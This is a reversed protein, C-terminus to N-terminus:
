RCGDCSILAQLPCGRCRLRIHFIRDLFSDVCRQRGGRAGRCREADVHLAPVICATKLDRLRGAAREALAEDEVHERWARIAPCGGSRDRGTLDARCRVPRCPEAPIDQDVPDVHDQCPEIIGKVCLDSDPVRLRVNVSRCSGIRDARDEVPAPREGDVGAVPRILDGYGSRGRGAAHHGRDVPLCPVVPEVDVEEGPRLVRGPRGRLLRLDADGVRVRSCEVQGPGQLLPVATGEGAGNGHGRRRLARPHGSHVALAVLGVDVRVARRIIHVGKDILLFDYQVRSIGDLRRAERIIDKCPRIRVADRHVARVSVEAIDFRDRVACQRDARDVRREHIDEKLSRVDDQVARDARLVQCHARGPLCRLSLFVQRDSKRADIRDSHLPGDVRLCRLDPDKLVRIEPRVIDRECRFRCRINVPVRQDARVPFPDEGKRIQCGPDQDVTLEFRHGPADRRERACHHCHDRAIRPSGKVAEDRQRFSHDRDTLARVKDSRAIDQCLGHATDDACDFSGERFRRVCGVRDGHDATLCGCCHRAPDKGAATDNDCCVPAHLRVRIHGSTIRSKCDCRCILVDPRFHCAATCYLGKACHIDNGRQGATEM